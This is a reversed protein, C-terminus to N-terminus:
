PGIFRGKISTSSLQTAGRFLWSLKRREEQEFRHDNEAAHILNAGKKFYVVM